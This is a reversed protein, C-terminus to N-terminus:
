YGSKFSNDVLIHVAAYVVECAYSSFGHFFGIAHNNIDHCRFLGYRDNICTPLFM